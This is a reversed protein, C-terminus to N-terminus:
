KGIYASWYGQGKLVQAICLEEDRLRLPLGRKCNTYFGASLPYKGTMLSARHPSCVPFTSFAHDCYTSEECFRDMNPTYVPDEGAFGM